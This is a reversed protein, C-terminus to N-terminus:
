PKKPGAEALAGFLKLAVKWPYRNGFMSVKTKLKGQKNMGFAARFQNAPSNEDYDAKESYRASLFGGLYAKDIPLKPTAKKNGSVSAFDLDEFENAWIREMSNNGAESYLLDGQKNVFFINHDLKLWEDKNFRTHDVGTIINAGFINHHIDYSLKTMVRAGYGMDQFDKIRSWSFLIANNSIEVHGDKHTPGKPGKKGGTGYIEIAAMRNSVFVNNRVKFTGQKHGAQIGFKACNAFVNNEITVDGASAAAGIYICQETVTPNESGSKQPPLLLMGTEVGEPKGKKADYSNRMGMDFIFGDVKFHQGKKSKKLTVLAKRSKKSSKNTPQILTPHAVMDRKSFDASYGGILSVPEKIELYGKGRLGFYNGEAVHITDGAKAKKLAKEINKMPSEKTADNGNSGTSASVYFDKAFATSASFLIIGLIAINKM